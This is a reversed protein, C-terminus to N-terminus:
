SKLMFIIKRGCFLTRIKMNLVFYLSAFHDIQSCIRMIAVYPVCIFFYLVYQYDGYETCM